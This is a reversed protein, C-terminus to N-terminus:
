SIRRIKRFYFTVRYAETRDGMRAVHGALKMRKIQDGLYHLVPLCENSTYVSSCSPRVSASLLVFRVNMVANRLGYNGPPRRTDTSCCVSTFVAYTKDTLSLVVHWDLSDSGNFCRVRWSFILNNTFTFTFTERLLGPCAWPTGPLNLGRIKKVNPV